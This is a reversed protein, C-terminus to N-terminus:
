YYPVLVISTVVRSISNDIHSLAFFAGVPSEPIYGVVYDMSGFLDLYVLLLPPYPIGFFTPKSAQFSKSRFDLEAFKIIICCPIGSRPMCRIANNM